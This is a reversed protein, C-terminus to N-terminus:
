NSFKNLLGTSAIQALVDNSKILVMCHHHGLPCRDHGHAGCPRCDLNTEVVRSEDNWPRFGLALTTPGFIVMAPRHVFAAMHASASDNCVIFQADRIFDISQEINFQGAM